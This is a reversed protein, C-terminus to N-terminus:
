VFIFFEVVTVFELESEGETGDVELLFNVSLSFGLSVEIQSRVYFFM